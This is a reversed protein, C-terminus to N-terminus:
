RNQWRASLANRQWLATLGAFQPQSGGVMARVEGSIRDVVVMAGELEPKKREARIAKM